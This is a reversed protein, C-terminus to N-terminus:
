PNQDLLLGSFDSKPLPYTVSVKHRWLEQYLFTVPDLEYSVRKCISNKKFQYYYPIAFVLYSAM